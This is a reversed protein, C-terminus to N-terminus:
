PLLCMHNINGVACFPVPVTCNQLIEMACAGASVLPKGLGEEM